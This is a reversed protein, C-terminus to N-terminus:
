QFLSTKIKQFKRSVLKLKQQLYTTKWSFTQSKWGNPETQRVLRSRAACGELCVGGEWRSIELNLRSIQEKDQCNEFNSEVLGKCGCPDRVHTLDLFFYGLFLSIPVYRRDNEPEHFMHRRRQTHTDIHSPREFIEKTPRKTFSWAKLLTSKWGAGRERGSLYKKRLKMLGKILETTSNQTLWWLLCTSTFFTHNLRGGKGEGWKRKMEWIMQCHERVFGSRCPEKLKMTKLGEEYPM